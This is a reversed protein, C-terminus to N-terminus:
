RIRLKDLFRCRPAKSFDLHAVHSDLIAGTGLDLIKALFQYGIVGGGILLQFLQDRAFACREWGFHIRLVLLFQISEGLQVARLEVFGVQVVGHRIVLLFDLFELGLCVLAGILIEARKCLFLQGDQLLMQIHGLARAVRSM